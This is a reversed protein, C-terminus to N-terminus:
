TRANPQQTKAKHVIAGYNGTDARKTPPRRKESSEVADKSRPALDAYQPQDADSESEQVVVFLLSAICLM